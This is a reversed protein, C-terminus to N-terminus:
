SKKIIQPSNAIYEECFGQRDLTVKTWVQRMVSAEDTFRRCTEQDRPCNVGKCKMIGTV